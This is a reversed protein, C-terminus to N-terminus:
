KEGDSTNKDCHEQCYEKAQKLTKRGAIAKGYHYVIWSQSVKRQTDTNKRIEFPQSVYAGLFYKEWILKSM